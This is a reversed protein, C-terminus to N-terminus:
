SRVNNIRRGCKCDSTICGCPVIKSPVLLSSGEGEIGETCGGGIHAFEDYLGQLSVVSRGPGPGKTESGSSVSEGMQYTEGRLDSFLSLQQSTQQLSQANLDRLTKFLEDKTFFVDTAYNHMVDVREPEADFLIYTPKDRGVAYGLEVHASKGCPMVMVVADSRDMWKKDFKYINQAAACRLTEKYGKRRAKYYDRLFDDADPGPCLWDMFPDIGQAELENALAIVADKNKLSSVIYVLM